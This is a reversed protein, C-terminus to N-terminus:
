LGYRRRMEQYSPLFRGAQRMLWVPPRGQNCGALAQLFLGM